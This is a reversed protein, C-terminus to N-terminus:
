TVPVSPSEAAPRSSRLQAPPWDRGLADGVGFSLAERSKSVMDLSSEMDTGMTEGRQNEVDTEGLIEEIIQVQIVRANAMAADANAMASVYDKREMADEAEVYHDSSTEIDASVDLNILLDKAKQLTTRVVDTFIDEFVSFSERAAELSKKYSKLSLHHHAEALHEPALLTDLDRDNAIISLEDCTKIIGEVLERQAEDVDKVLEDLTNKAENFEAKERHREATDVRRTLEGTEVGLRDAEEMLSRIDDIVAAIAMDSVEKAKVTVRASLEHSHYFDHAAFMDQTQNLNSIVETDDAGVFAMIDVAEKAEELTIRARDEMYSEVPAKVDEVIEAAEVYNGEEAIM